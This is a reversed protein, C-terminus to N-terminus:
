YKDSDEKLEGIWDFLEKGCNPALIVGEDQEWVWKKWPKHYYVVGLFEAKKKNAIEFFGGSNEVQILNKKILKIGLIANRTEDRDFKYAYEPGNKGHEEYQVFLGERGQEIFEKDM